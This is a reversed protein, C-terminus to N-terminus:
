LPAVALGSPFGAGQEPCSAPFADTEFFFALPQCQRLGALRSFRLVLFDSVPAGPFGVSQSIELWRYLALTAAESIEILAPRCCGFEFHEGRLRLFVRCSSDHEVQSSRLLLASANQLMSM